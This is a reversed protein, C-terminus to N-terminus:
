GRRMARWAARLLVRQLTLLCMDLYLDRAFAQGVFREIRSEDGVLAALSSGGGLVALLAAAKIRIAQWSSIWVGLVFVPEPRNYDVTWMALVRDSVTLNFYVLLFIFMVLPVLVVLALVKIANKALLLLFESDSPERDHDTANAILDCTPEAVSVGLAECQQVLTGASVKEHAGWGEDRLKDVIVKRHLLAVVATPLLYTLCAVMPVAGGRLESVLQWGGPNLFIITAAVTAAVLITVPLRVLNPLMSFTALLASMTLWIAMYQTPSILWFFFVLLLSLGVIPSIGRSGLGVGLLALCVYVGSCFAERMALEFLLRAVESLLLATRSRRASRRVLALNLAVAVGFKPILLASLPAAWLGADSALLIRGAWTEVLGGGVLALAVLITVVSIASHIVAYAVPLGYVAAGWMWWGGVYRGGQRAQRSRTDMVRRLTQTRFPLLVPRTLRLHVGFTVGSCIGALVAVQLLGRPTDLTGLCAFVIVWGVCELLFYFGLERWGLRWEEEDDAWPSPVLEWFRFRLGRAILLRRVDGLQAEISALEEANERIVM